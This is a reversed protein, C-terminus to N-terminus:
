SMMAFRSALWVCRPMRAAKRGAKSACGCVMWFDRAIQWRGSHGFKRFAGGSGALFPMSACWAALQRCAGGFSLTVDPLSRCCRRDRGRSESRNM